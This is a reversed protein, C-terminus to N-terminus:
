RDSGLWRPEVVGFENQALAVHHTTERVDATVLIGGDQCGDVAFVSLDFIRERSPLSLRRVGLICPEHKRVEHVLIALVTSSMPVENIVGLPHDRCAEELWRSVKLSHEMAQAFADDSLIVALSAGIGASLDVSVVLGAPSEFSEVDPMRVIPIALERPTKFAIKGAPLGFADDSTLRGEVLAMGRSGSEDMAAGGCSLSLGITGADVGAGRFLSIVEGFAGALALHVPHGGEVRRSVASADCLNQFDSCLIMERASRALDLTPRSGSPGQDDRGNRLPNSFM